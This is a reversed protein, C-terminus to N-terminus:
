EWSSETSLFSPTPFGNVPTGKPLKGLWNSFSCTVAEVGLSAVNQDDVAVAVAPNVLGIPIILLAPALSVGIM